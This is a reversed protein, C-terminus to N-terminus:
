IAVMQENYIFVLSFFHYLNYWTTCNSSNSIFKNTLSITIKNEINIFIFWMPLMAKKEKM